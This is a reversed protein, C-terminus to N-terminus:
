GQLTPAAFTDNPHRRDPATQYDLGGIAIAAVQPNITRNAIPNQPRAAPMLDSAVAMVIDLMDEIMNTAFEATREVINLTSNRIAM